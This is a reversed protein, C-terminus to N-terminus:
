PPYGELWPAFRRPPFLSPFSCPFLRSCRSCHHVLLLLLARGPGRGPQGPGVRGLRVRVRGEALVGARRAGAAGARRAPVLPRRALPAVVGPPAVRPVTGHRGRALRDVGPGPGDRGKGPRGRQGGRPRARAHVVGRRVAGLVARRHRGRGRGRGGVVGRRAGHRRRPAVAAAHPVVGVHGRWGRLEHAQRARAGAAEERGLLRASALRLEAEAHRPAPLRRADEGPPARDARRPPLSRARGGLLDLLLPLLGPHRSGGAARGVPLARPRGRRARHRRRRVGPVLVRRVRRGLRHGALGVLRDQESELLQLPLLGVELLPPGRLLEPPPEVDLRALHVRAAGADDLHLGPPLAPPVSASAPRLPARGRPRAQGRQGRPRRRRGPRSLVVVIVARGVHLSLVLMPPVMVGAPVGPPVDLAGAGVSM